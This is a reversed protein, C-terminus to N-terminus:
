KNLNFNITVRSQSQVNVGDITAPKYRWQLVAAVAAQHLLPPGSVPTARTVRGKEDIQIDLVVSGATRNRLAVEPYSPSTQLIPVPPVVIKQQVPIIPMPKSIPALEGGKVAGSPTIQTSAKEAAANLAIGNGSIALLNSKEPVSPSDEHHAALSPVAASSMNGTKDEAKAQEGAFDSVVPPVSNAATEEPRSMPAAFPSSPIEKALSPPRRVDAGPMSKVGGASAITQRPSRQTKETGGEGKWSPSGILSQETALNSAAIDPAAKISKSPNTDRSSFLSYTGIGMIILMGIAVAAALPLKKKEALGQSFPMIVRESPLPRDETKAEQFVQRSDLSPTEEIDPAGVADTSKTLSGTESEMQVEDASLQEPTSDESEWLDKESYTQSPGRNLNALLNDESCHELQVQASDTVPTSAAWTVDQSNEPQADAETIVRKLLDEVLADIEETQDVQESPKKAAAFERNLFDLVAAEYLDEGPNTTMAKQDERSSM